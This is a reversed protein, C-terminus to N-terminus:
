LSFYSYQATGVYWFEGDECTILDYKEKIDNSVEKWEKSSSYLHCQIHTSTTSIYLTCPINSM